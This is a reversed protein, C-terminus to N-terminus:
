QAPSSGSNGQPRHFQLINRLLNIRNGRFPFMMLLRQFAHRARQRHRPAAKTTGDNACVAWGEGGPLVLGAGPMFSVFAFDAASCNISILVALSSSNRERLPTPSMRAAFMM